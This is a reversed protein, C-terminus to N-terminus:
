REKLIHTVLHLIMGHIDEVQGFDNGRVVIGSDVLRDLGGGDFGSLGIVIAGKAKALKVANLVNRSNGSVSIGIVVDDPVLVNMLQQSFVDGYSLDNAYATMTSINGTLATIRFRREELDSSQKVTSKGLDCAFHMATAASGGNGFVYIHRGKDRANLLIYLIHKVEDADVEKILEQIERLYKEIEGM